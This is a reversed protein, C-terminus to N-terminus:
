DVWLRMLNSKAKLITLRAERNEATDPLQALARHLDFLIERHEALRVRSQLWGVAALRSGSRVEAVYHLSTAPYLSLAGRPLKVQEDGDQKRIVLEGGEYSDPDSLFLTFSLDTRTGAIIPDDVHTGYHMGPVYRNFMIKAFKEPIAAARFVPHALLAKELLKVAGRVEPTQPRAQLNTKVRKATRGATRKGDEFLSDDSLADTVAKLTHVDMVNDLFIQM